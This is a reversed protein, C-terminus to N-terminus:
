GAAGSPCAARARSGSADVRLLHRRRRRQQRVLRHRDGIAPPQAILQLEDILAPVVGVVGVRQLAVARNVALVPEEIQRDDGVGHVFRPPQRRRDARLRRLSRLGVVLEAVALLRREGLVQDDAQGVELAVRRELRRLELEPQHRHEVVVVARHSSTRASLMSGRLPVVRVRRSRQRDLFREDVVLVPDDGVAVVEVVDADPDLREDRIKAAEQELVLRM